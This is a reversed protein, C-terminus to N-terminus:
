HLTYDHVYQRLAETSSTRDPLYRLIITILRTSDDIVKAYYEFDGEQGTHISYNDGAELLEAGMGMFLQGPTRFLDDGKFVEQKMFSLSLDDNMFVEMQDDELYEHRLYSPYTIDLGLKDSHYNITDSHSLEINLSDDATIVNSFSKIKQQKCSCLLAIALLCCCVSLHHLASLRHTMM